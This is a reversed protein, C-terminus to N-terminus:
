PGSEESVTQIIKRWANNGKDLKTTICSCLWNLNKIEQNRLELFSMFVAYNAQEDFTIRHLRIREKMMLDDISADRNTAEQSPDPIANVIDDYRKNIKCKQKQDDFTDCEKLFFYHCDPYFYGCAPLQIRRQEERSKKEEKFTNYVVNITMFDAETKLLHLMNDASIGNLNECFAIFDEIWYKKLMSRLVEAHKDQFFGGIQEMKTLDKSGELLRLFYESLPSEVLVTEYQINPDEKESKLNRLEPYLGLPHLNAELDQERRHNRIGEIMSVTNDIMYPVRLYWLFKNLDGVCNKEFYDYEESLRTELGRRITTDNITQVNANDWVGAYDCEDELYSKFDQLNTFQKLAEYHVDKLLVLKQGRCVAEPFGNEISFTCLEM